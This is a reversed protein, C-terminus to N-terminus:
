KARQEIKMRVNTTYSRSPQVVLHLYASISLIAEAQENSSTEMSQQAWDTSRQTCIISMSIYLIVNDIHNSDLMLSIRLRRGGGRTLM